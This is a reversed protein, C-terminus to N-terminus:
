KFRRLQDWVVRLSLDLEDAIELLAQASWPRERASWREYLEREVTPAPNRARGVAARLGHIRRLRAYRHRSLGFFYTMMARPAGRRICAEILSERKRQQDISRFVQDLAQPDIALEVCESALEGLRLFETSTMRSIRELQDPRLQLRRTAREDRDKLCDAVYTFVSQMLRVERLAEYSLRANM